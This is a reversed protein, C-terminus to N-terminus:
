STTKLADHLSANLELLSFGTVILFKGTICTWLGGEHWPQWLQGHMKPGEPPKHCLPQYTPVHALHTHVQAFLTGTWLQGALRDAPSRQGLPIPLKSAQGLAAQISRSSALHSFCSRALLIHNWASAPPGPRLVGSFPRGPGGGPAPAPLHGQSVPAEPSIDGPGQGSRAARFQEWRERRVQGRSSLNEQCLLCCM